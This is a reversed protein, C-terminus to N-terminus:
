YHNKIEFTPGNKGWRKVMDARIYNLNTRFSGIISVGIQIKRENYAKRQSMGSILCQVFKEHRANELVPM